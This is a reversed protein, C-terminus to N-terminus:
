IFTVTRPLPEIVTLQFIMVEQKRNILTTINFNNTETSRAVSQKGRNIMCDSLTHNNAPTVKEVSHIAKGKDHNTVCNPLTNSARQNNVNNTTVCNPLTTTIIDLKNELDDIDKIM